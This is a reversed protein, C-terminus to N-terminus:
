ENDKKDNFSAQYIPVDISGFDKKESKKSIDENDTIIEEETETSANENENNVSGRNTFTEIIKSLKEHCKSENKKMKSSNKSDRKCKSVPSDEQKDSKKEKQKSGPKDEPFEIDNLRKWDIDAYSCEELPFNHEIETNVLALITKDDTVQKTLIVPMNYKEFTKLIEYIDADSKEPFKKKIAFSYFNYFDDSDYNSDATIFKEIESKICEKGEESSFDPNQIFTDPDAFFTLTPIYYDYEQVKNINPFCLVRELMGDTAMLVSNITESRYDDFTWKDVNTLTYTQNSEAGKHQNTIHIYEGGDTLALVGSDGVHGYIVISKGDYVVVDLTTELENMPINSKKSYIQTKKLASSFALMMLAYMLSRDYVNHPLNEKVFRIVEEVALKSAIDSHKASGIGDAIAAIMMNDNLIDFKSYDQCPTNNKKHGKGQIHFNYAFIENIM